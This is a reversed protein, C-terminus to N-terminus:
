SPLAVFFSVSWTFLVCVCVCVYVDCWMMDCLLSLSSKSALLFYCRILVLSIIWLAPADISCTPVGPNIRLVAHDGSCYWCHVRLSCGSCGLVAVYPRFFLFWDNVETVSIKYNNCPQCILTFIKSRPVQIQVQSFNFWFQFLRVPTRPWPPSPLRVIRLLLLIKLFDTTPPWLFLVPSLPSVKCM